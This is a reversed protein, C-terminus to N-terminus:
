AVLNAADLTNATGSGIGLPIDITAQNTASVKGWLATGDTQDAASGVQAPLGAAEQGVAGLGVAGTKLEVVLQPEAPRTM